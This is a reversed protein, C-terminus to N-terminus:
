ARATELLAIHIAVVLDLMASLPLRGSGASLEMKKVHIYCGASLLRHCTALFSNDRKRLEVSGDGWLSRLLDVVSCSFLSEIILWYATRGCCGYWASRLGWRRWGQLALSEGHRHRASQTYLEHAGLMM